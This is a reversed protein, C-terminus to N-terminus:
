RNVVDIWGLYEYSKAGYHLIPRDYEIIEIVSNYQRFTNNHIIKGDELALATHPVGTNNSGIGRYLVMSGPEPPKCKNAGYTEYVGIAGRPNRYADINVGAGHLFADLVFLHCLGWGNEDLYSNVLGERDKAWDIAKEKKSGPIISGVLDDKRSDIDEKVGEILEDKMDSAGDVIDEVFDDLESKIITSLEDQMEETCGSFVLIILSLALGYIIFSGLVKM